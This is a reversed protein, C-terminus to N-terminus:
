RKTRTGDQKERNAAGECCAARTKRTERAPGSGTTRNRGAQSAAAPQVQAFSSVDSDGARWRWGFSSLLPLLVLFLCRCLSHSALKSGSFFHVGTAARMVM